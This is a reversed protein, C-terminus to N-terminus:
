VIWKTNFVNELAETLNLSNELIHSVKDNPEAYLTPFDIEGKEAKPSYALVEEDLSFEANIGNENGRADLRIWKDISKIFVGNLGHLGFQGDFQLEQYCFGTPIGLNRLIAAALHSKALCLGHKYKLVESARFTVVNSGIDMSHSIDDRIFEYVTKVLEVEKEICESLESAKIKISENNCDIVESCQLYCSLDSSKLILKM